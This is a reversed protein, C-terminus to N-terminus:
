AAACADPRVQDPAPTQTSQYITVGDTEADYRIAVGRPEMSAPAVRPHITEVEVVHAAQAFAQQM